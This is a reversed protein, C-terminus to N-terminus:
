GLEDLALEVASHQEATTSTADDAATLLDFIM